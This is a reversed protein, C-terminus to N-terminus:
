FGCMTIIPRIRTQIVLNQNNYGKKGGYNEISNKFTGKKSSTQPLPSSSFSWNKSKRKFLQRRHRLSYRVKISSHQQQTVKDRLLLLQGNVEM